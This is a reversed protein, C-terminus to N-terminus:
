VSSDRQFIVRKKSLEKKAKKLENLDMQKKLAILAFFVSLLAIILISVLLM